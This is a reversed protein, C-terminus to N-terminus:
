QPLNIEYKVDENEWSYLEATQNGDPIQVVMTVVGQEGAPILGYDASSFFGDSYVNEIYGEKVDLSYQSGRREVTVNTDNELVIEIQYYSKGESSEKGNYEKGIKEAGIDVIELEADYVLDYYIDSQARVGVGMCILIVFGTALILFVILINRVVKSM